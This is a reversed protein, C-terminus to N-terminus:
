SPSNVESVSGIFVPLGSELDIVAYAFPRDCKVVNQHDDPAASGEAVIATVAAAETGHRDVKIYTKHIVDTVSVPVNCMNSFDGNEFPLTMGMDKLTSVLHTEYETTFEPFVAITTEYTYNDIMTWYDEPTMESLFDQISQSEDDPLIVMFAYQGDDYPKIFGQAKDNKIYREEKSNLFTVNQDKGGQAHFTDSYVHDEDFDTEWKGDFVIANILVLISEDSLSDLIKTIRGKTKENVWNNISPVADPSAFDLSRLEADFNKSVFDYYDQYFSAGSGSNTWASNSINLANGSLRDMRDVAFQFAAANDVDPILTHLIQDLTEGNAGGALLELAFMISDPSLMINGDSDKACRHLLEFVFKSYNKYLTKDDVSQDSSASLQFIATQGEPRASDIVPSGIDTSVTTQGQSPKTNNKEEKKSCGALFSLVTCCSLLTAIAKKMYVFRKYRNSYSPVLGKHNRGETILRLSLFPRQLVPKLFKEFFIM